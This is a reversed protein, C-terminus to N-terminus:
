FDKCDAKDGKFKPIVVAKLHSSTTHTSTTPSSALVFANILNSASM